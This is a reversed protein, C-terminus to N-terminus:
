RQEANLVARIEPILESATLGLVGGLRGVLRDAALGHIRVAHTAALDPRIGQAVLSGMFGALVDGTGAVALSPNGTQNMVIPQGPSAILTQYGKLVVHVHYKEVLATAASPRNAQIDSVTVGLLRAAEGPHPTLITPAAREQCLATLASDTSLLNLGDADIVLPAGSLLLKEFYTAAPPSIGLGPGALWTTIPKEHCHDAAIVMLEPMLADLVYGDALSSRVVFVRGTGTMLAARASLFAAGVTGTTGGLVGLSGHDAKNADLARSLLLASM